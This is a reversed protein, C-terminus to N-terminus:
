GLVPVEAQTEFTNGCPPVLAERVTRCPALALSHVTHLRAM